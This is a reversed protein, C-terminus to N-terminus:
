RIGGDLEAAHALLDRAELDGPREALRRLEAAAGARIAKVLLANMEGPTLKILANDPTGDVNEFRAEPLGLALEEALDCALDTIQDVLTSM